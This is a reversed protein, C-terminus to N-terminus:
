MPDDTFVELGEQSVRSPSVLRGGAEDLFLKTGVKATAHQRVAEQAHVAVIAPEVAENRERALPASEAWDRRGVGGSGVGLM